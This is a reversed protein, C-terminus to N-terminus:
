YKIVQINIMISRDPSVAGAACRQRQWGATPRRVASRRGHITGPFRRSSCLHDRDAIIPPSACAEAAATEGWSADEKAFRSLAVPLKLRNRQLPM